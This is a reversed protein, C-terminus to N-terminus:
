RTREAGVMLIDDLPGASWRRRPASSALSICLFRCPKRRSDATSPTLNGTLDVAFDAVKDGNADGELVTVSNTSDYRTHLAGARGDFAATGLLPLRRDREAYQHRCGHPSIIKDTGPLFDTIV